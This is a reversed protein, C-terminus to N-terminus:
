TILLNKRRSFSETSERSQWIVYVLYALKELRLSNSRQKDLTIFHKWMVPLYRLNFLHLWHYGCMIMIWKLTVLRPPLIFRFSSRLWKMLTRKIQAFKRMQCARLTRWSFASFTDSFLIMNLVNSFTRKNKYGSRFVLSLLMFLVKSNLWVRLHKCSTIDVCPM